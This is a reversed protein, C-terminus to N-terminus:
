VPLWGKFADLLLRRPQRRKSGLAACQDRRPEQQRLQAPRGPGHRPQRHRRVLALGILYAALVAALIKFDLM